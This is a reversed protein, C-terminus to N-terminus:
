ARVMPVGEGVIEQLFELAYTQTSTSKTGHWVVRWGYGYTMKQAIGTKWPKAGGVNKRIALRTLCVPIKPNPNM